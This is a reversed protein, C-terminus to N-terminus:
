GPRQPLPEVSPSDENAQKSRHTWFGESRKMMQSATTRNTRANIIPNERTRFLAVVEPSFPPCQVPRYKPGPTTQVVSTEPETAVDSHNNDDIRIERSPDCDVGMEADCTNVVMSRRSDEGELMIEAALACLFEETKDKIEKLDEPAVVVPPLASGAVDEEGISITHRSPDTVTSCPSAKPEALTDIEDDYALRGEDGSRTVKDLDRDQQQARMFVPSHLSPTGHQCESRFPDGGSRSPSERRDTVDLSMYLARTLRARTTYPSVDLENSYQPCYRDGENGTRASYSDGGSQRHRRAEPSRSRYRDRSRQKPSHSRYRDRSRITLADRDQYHRRGSRSPTRPERNQTTAKERQKTLSNEHPNKPCLTAYHDGHQGCFICRYDRAPAQDYRPDLNTPCDQLM